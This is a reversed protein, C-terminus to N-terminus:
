IDGVGRRLARCRHSGAPAAPVDRAFSPSLRPGGRRPAGSRRASEGPGNRARGRRGPSGAPRVGPGHAAGATAHRSGADLRVRRQHRRIPRWRTSRASWSTTPSRGGSSMSCITSASGRCGSRGRLSLDESASGLLPPPPAQPESRPRVPRDGDARAGSARRRRRRAASGGGLRRGAGGPVGLWAASDETLLEDGRESGYFGVASACVSSGRDTRCPPWSVPWSRPPVSGATACWGSTPTPSVAPSPHAPSICSLTSARWRARTPDSPIGPGSSRIM